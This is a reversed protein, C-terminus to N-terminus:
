PITKNVYPQLAELDLAADLGDGTPAALDRGNVFKLPNTSPQIPFDDRPLCGTVYTLNPMAIALHLNARACLDTMVLGGIYIGIDPANEQLYRGMRIAELLGGSKQIKINVMDAANLQALEKVAELDWLGEDAMIVMKFSDTDDWEHLTETLAALSEYRTDQMPAECIFTGTFNEDQLMQRIRALEDSAQPVDKWSKNMDVWLARGQDQEVLVRTVAQLRDLDTDPDLGLKIRIAPYDSRLGRAKDALVDAEVNASFTIAALTVSDRLQGGLLEYIPVGHKQGIFDLLAMDFGALTARLQRDAAPPNKWTLTEAAAIERLSSMIKEAQAVDDEATTGELEAKLLFDRMASAGAWSDDLSENTMLTRPLIEGIGEIAKGDPGTGKLTVFIGYCSDSSAKATVFANEKPLDFGILDIEDFTAGQASLSGVLFLSAAATRISNPFIKM